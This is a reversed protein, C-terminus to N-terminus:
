VSPEKWRYGISDVANRSNDQPSVHLVGSNSLFFDPLTGRFIRSSPPAYVDQHITRYPSKPVPKTRIMFSLPSPKSHELWECFFIRLAKYSYHSLLVITATINLVIICCYFLLM